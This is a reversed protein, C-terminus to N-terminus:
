LYQAIEKELSYNCISSVGLFHGVSNVELFYYKNGSKIFDLSGCNIDLTEMLLCIKAEIEKPLVYRVNRNPKNHNYIRFDTKTQEDNQSIIATSWIKGNLYFSRIEFDKEIKEQFFTIFFDSEEFEEVITTYMIGDSHQTIFDLTINGTIPKIITENLAVDNTNSALFFDPIDLGIKKAEELVLLKNVHSNSQKNITKKSEIKKLVYDELWHQHEDMHNNVSENEFHSRNFRLGGRRYWTSTIEDLFFRNRSSELFIRKQFVKIEFVEDEHVRIFKKKMLSLWKVVENTTTEQNKSLILIM